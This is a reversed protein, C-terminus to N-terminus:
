DSSSASDIMMSLTNFATTMSSIISDYAAFKSAMIEYRKDLMTVSKERQETLSDAKTDLYTSYIALTGTSSKTYTTLLDSFDTFFGNNTTSQGNVTTAKLGLTALATADGTFPL